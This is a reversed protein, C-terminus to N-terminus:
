LVRHSIAIRSLLLIPDWLCLVVLVLRLELLLTTRPSMTM